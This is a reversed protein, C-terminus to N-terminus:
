KCGKTMGGRAMTIMKGRTKGKKAIGDAKKHGTTLGGKAYKKTKMVNGGKANSNTKNASSRSTPRTKPPNSRLTRAAEERAERNRRAVEELYERRERTMPVTDSGGTVPESRARTSGGSRFKMTKKAM